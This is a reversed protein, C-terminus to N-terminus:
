CFQHVTDGDPLLRSAAHTPALCVVKQNLEELREKVKALIWTKGVGPAGLLTFSKGTNVQQLVQELFEDPGRKPETCTKWTLEDHYPPDVHDAIKLTGGPFRPECENAKYVLETSKSPDQKATSISAVLPSAVKHLDCYRLTRFPKQM